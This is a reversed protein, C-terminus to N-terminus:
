ALMKKGSAAESVYLRMCLIYYHTKNECTEVQQSLVFLHIHKIDCESEGSNM